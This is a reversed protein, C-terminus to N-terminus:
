HMAASDEGFQSLPTIKASIRGAVEAWSELKGFIRHGVSYERETFEKKQTFRSLNTETAQM